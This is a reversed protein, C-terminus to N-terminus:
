IRWLSHDFRENLLYIERMRDLPYLRSFFRQASDVLVKQSDTLQLDM